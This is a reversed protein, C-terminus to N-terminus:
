CKSDIEVTPLPPVMIPPLKHKNALQDEVALRTKLAKKSKPVKSFRCQIRVRRTEGEPITVGERRTNGAEEMVDAGIFYNALPELPRAKLVRVPTGSGPANTVWWLTVIVMFPEDNCSGRGWRRPSDM